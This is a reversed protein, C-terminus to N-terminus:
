PQTGPTHLRQQENRPQQLAAESQIIASSYRSTLQQLMPPTTSSKFLSPTAFTLLDNVWLCYEYFAEDEFCYKMLKQGECPTNDQSM